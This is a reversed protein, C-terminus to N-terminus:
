NLNSRPGGGGIQTCATRGIRSEDVPRCVYPIRRELPSGPMAMRAECGPDPLSALIGLAHKHM